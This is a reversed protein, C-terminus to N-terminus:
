GERRRSILDEIIERALRSVSRVRSSVIGVQTSDSLNFFGVPVGLHKCYESLEKRVEGGQHSVLHRLLKAETRPDPELKHDSYHPYDQKNHTHPYKAEIIQFLLNVRLPLPASNAFRWLLLQRELTGDTTWEQPVISEDIPSLVNMFGRVFDRDTTLGNSRVQRGPAPALDEGYLFFLRDCERRVEGYVAETLDEEDSPAPDPKEVVIFITANERVVSFHHPLLRDLAEIVEARGISVSFFYRM